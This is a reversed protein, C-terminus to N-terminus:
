LNQCSYPEISCRVEDKKSVEVRAVMNVEFEDKHGRSILSRVGWKFRM